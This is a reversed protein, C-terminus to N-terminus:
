DRREIDEGPPYFFINTPKIDLTNLDISNGHIINSPKDEKKARASFTLVGIWSLVLGPRSSYCLFFSPLASPSPVKITITLDQFYTTTSCIIEM